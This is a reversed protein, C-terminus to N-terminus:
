SGLIPFTSPDRGERVVICFGTQACACRAAGSAYSRVILKKPRVIDRDGCDAVAHHEDSHTNKFVALFPVSLSSTMVLNLTELRAKM